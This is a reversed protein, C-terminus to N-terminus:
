ERLDFIVTKIETMEEIAFKIGERGIGSEKYGGYPMFDARYRPGENILVGGFELKEIAEFAEDIKSTFVGVQLGYKTSNAEELAEEFVEFSNVAVAPGFLEETMIKTDKPVELLVTPSILTYNREGGIALKAGKDVAEKIWSEIRLANPEDIVPGMDTDRSMPDGVKIKKVEEILLDVFDNFVKKHVYVRQVSICVQGALSFGGSVTAKVAKELNGTETVILPSNSGLEMSVKKLGVNKMITKGVPVSGTFSVMRIREDRVIPTGVRSGPGTLISVAESPMGAELLIEGLVLNTLPDQTPPKIIVANGAAIAPGVKHACLALPVNFPVIAAVIGVPERVFYGRKRESGKLSDFPLTEGHIRKAEEASMRFLEATRLVEAEAERITKGSEKVLLVAIEKYREKLLESTKELIEVRKWIPMRKMIKAGEVAKSIAEEIDEESAVPVTDVLSGDYPNLVEIKEDRDVWRGAVLMKM